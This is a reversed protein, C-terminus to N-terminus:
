FEEENVNESKFYNYANLMSTFITELYEQSYEAPCPVYEYVGFEKSLRLIWKEPLQYKRNYFATQVWYLLSIKKSSKVDIIANSTRFDLTGACGLDEYHVVEQAVQIDAFVAPYDRKWAEWATILSDLEASGKKRKKPTLGMYDQYTYDDIASGEKLAARSIVGAEKKGVRVKWEVLKPHPFFDLITSCRKYKRGGIDYFEFDAM